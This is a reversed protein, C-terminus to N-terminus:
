SAFQVTETRGIVKTRNEGTRVMIFFRVRVPRALDPHSWERRIPHVLRVTGSASKLVPAGGQPGVGTRFTVDPGRRSDFQPSISYEAEPDFNEIAYTIEASITTDANVAAGAAPFMSVIQATATSDPVKWVKSSACGALLLVAIPIVLKTTKM